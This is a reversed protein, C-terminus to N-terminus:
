KLGPLIDLVASRRVINKKGRNSHELLPHVDGGGLDIVGTRALGRMADGRGVPEVKIVEAGWDSLIASAAPVFTHEAVELIRFGELVSTV